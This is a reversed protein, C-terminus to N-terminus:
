TLSASFMDSHLLLGKAFGDGTRGVIIVALLSWPEDRVHQGEDREEEDADGEGEGEAPHHLHDLLVLSRDDESQASHQSSFGPTGPHEEDDRTNVNILLNVQPSLGIVDWWLLNEGEGERELRVASTEAKCIRVLSLTVTYTFAMM